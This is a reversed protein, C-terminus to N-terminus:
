ENNSEKLVIPYMHAVDINMGYISNLTFIAHKRYWDKQADTAIKRLEYLKKSIRSHSKTYRIIQRKFKKDTM